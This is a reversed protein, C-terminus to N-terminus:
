PFLSTLPPAQAKINLTSPVPQAALHLDGGGWWRFPSISCSTPFGSKSQPSSSPKSISFSGTLLAPSQQVRTSTALSSCILGFVSGHSHFCHIHQSFFFITLQLSLFFPPLFQLNVQQFILTIGPGHPFLSCNSVLSYPNEEQLSAFMRSNSLTSTQFGQSQLLVRWITNFIIFKITHSNYKLQFLYIHCSAQYNIRYILTVPQLMSVSVM